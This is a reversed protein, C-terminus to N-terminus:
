QGSTVVNSRRSTNSTTKKEKKKEAEFHDWFGDAEGTICMLDM